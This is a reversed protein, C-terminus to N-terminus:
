VVELEKYSGQAVNPHSIQPVAHPSNWEYLVRWWVALPDSASNFNEIVLAILIWVKGM